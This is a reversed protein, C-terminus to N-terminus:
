IAGPAKTFFDVLEDHRAKTDLYGQREISTTYSSDFLLYSLFDAEKIGEREAIHSLLLRTTRTLELVHHVTGFVSTTSRGVFRLASPIM